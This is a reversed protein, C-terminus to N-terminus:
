DDRKARWAPSQPSPGDMRILKRLADRHRVARAIRVARAASPEPDKGSARREALATHLQVLEELHEVACWLAEDLRDEKFEVLSDVSFIHGVRCRFSLFGQKGLETVYLVGSCDPCGIDTPVFGQERAGARGFTRELESRNASSVPTAGKQKAPTFDAKM